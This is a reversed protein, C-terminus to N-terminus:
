AIPLEEPAAPFLCTQVDCHSCSWTYMIRKRKAGGLTTTTVHSGAVIEDCTLTELPKSCQTIPDKGNCHGQEHKLDMYRHNIDPFGNDASIM